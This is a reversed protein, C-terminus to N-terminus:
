EAALTRTDTVVLVCARCATGGSQSFWRCNARITCPPLEAAVQPGDASALRDLVREIVGCSHGTWQGCQGEVCRGAFRMRAEPPGQTAAAALFDADVELPTRLNHIRGDPGLMGILTAGAEAPASPCTRPAPPAGPQAAM